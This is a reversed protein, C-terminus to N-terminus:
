AGILRREEDTTGGWIGAHGNRLAEALCPTRVPCGACVQKAARVRVTADTRLPFFLEPAAQRCASLQEWGASLTTTVGTLQASGRDPQCM